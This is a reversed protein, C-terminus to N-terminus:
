VLFPVEVASLRVVIGTQDVMRAFGIALGYLVLQLNVDVGSLRDLFSSFEREIVAEWHLVPLLM